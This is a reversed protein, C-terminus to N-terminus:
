DMVELKDFFEKMKEGRFFRKKQEAGGGLFFSGPGAQTGLPCAVQAYAATLILFLMKYLMPQQVFPFSSCFTQDM